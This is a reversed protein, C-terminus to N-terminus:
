IVRTYRKSQRFLKHRYVTHVWQQTVRNVHIVHARVHHSLRNRQGIGTIRISFVNQIILTSIAQPVGETHSVWTSQSQTVVWLKHTVQPYRATSQQIHCGDVNYTITLTTHRTIVLETALNTQVRDIVERIQSVISFDNRFQTTQVVVINLLNIRQNTLQSFGNTRFAEAKTLRCELDEDHVCRTADNGVTEESLVVCRFHVRLFTIVPNFVGSHDVDEFTM